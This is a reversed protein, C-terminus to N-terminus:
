NKTALEASNKSIIPPDLAVICYSLRVQTESKCTLCVIIFIAIPVLNLIMAHMNSIQTIANLAGVMMLFITGPGLVAGFM